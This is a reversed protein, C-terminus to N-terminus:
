YGGTLKITFTHANAEFTLGRMVLGHIASLFETENDCYITM